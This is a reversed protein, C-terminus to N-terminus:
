SLGEQCPGPLVPFAHTRSVCLLMDLLMASRNRLVGCSGGETALSGGSCDDGLCPESSTVSPMSAQASEFSGNKRM